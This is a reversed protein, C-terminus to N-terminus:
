SAKTFSVEFFGLHALFAYKRKSEVSIKGIAGIRRQKRLLWKNLTADLAKIILNLFQKLRENLNVVPPKSPIPPSLIDFVIM